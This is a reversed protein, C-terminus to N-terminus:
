DVFFTSVVTSILCSVLKPSLKSSPSKPKPSPRQKEPPPSPRRAEPPPSPRKTERPNPDDDEEDRPRKLPEPASKSASDEEDSKQSTREESPRKSGGESHSRAHTQAISAVAAPIASDTGKDRDDKDAVGKETANKKDDDASVDGTAGQQEVKPSDDDKADTIVVDADESIEQATELPPVLAPQAQVGTMQEDKKDSAKLTQWHLDEVGQSIQGVRIRIERGPSVAVGIPPSVSHSRSRSRLSSPKSTEDEITEERTTGLVRKNRKASSHVDRPETRAPVDSDDQTRARKNNAHTCLHLLFSAVLLHQDTCCFLVLFVCRPKPLISLSSLSRGKVNGPCSLAKAIFTILM